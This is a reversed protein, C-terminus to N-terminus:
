ARRRDFAHCSGSRCENRRDLDRERAERRVGGSVAINRVRPSERGAAGPRVDQHLGQRVAVFDAAGDREIPEQAFAQPGRAPCQGDDEGVDGRVLTEIRSIRERRAADVLIEVAEPRGVHESPRAVAGLESARTLQPWEVVADIM